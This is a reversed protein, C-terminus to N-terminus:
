QSPLKRQEYTEKRAVIKQAAVLVAPSDIMRGLQRQSQDHEHHQEGTADHQMPALLLHFESPVRRSSECYKCGHQNPQDEKRQLAEFICVVPLGQRGVAIGIARDKVGDGAEVRQVHDATKQQKSIDANQGAVTRRKRRRVTRVM